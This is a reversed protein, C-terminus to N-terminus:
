SDQSLSMLSFIIESNVVPATAAAGAAGGLSAGVLGLGDVGVGELGGFGDGLGQSVGQGEVNGIGAGLAFFPLFFAPLIFSVNSRLTFLDVLSKQVPKDLFLWCANPLCGMNAM